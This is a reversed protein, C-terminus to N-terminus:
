QKPEGYGNTGQDWKKVLLYINYWPLFLWLWSKWSDHCRKVLYSIVKIIYFLSPILYMFWEKDWREKRSLLFFLLAILVTGILIKVFVFRNERGEFDATMWLFEM